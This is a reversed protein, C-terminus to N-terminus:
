SLSNGGKGEVTENGSDLKGLGIEFPNSKLRESAGKDDYGRM